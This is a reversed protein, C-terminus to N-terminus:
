GAFIMLLVTYVLLIVQSQGGAMIDTKNKIDIGLTKWKPHYLFITLNYDTILSNFNIAILAIVTPLVM